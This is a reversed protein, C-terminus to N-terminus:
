LPAKIFATAPVLPTAPEGDLEVPMQEFTRLGADDAAMAMWCVAGKKLVGCAIEVTYQLENHGKPNGKAREVWFTHTGLLYTRQVPGALDFTQKLGDAAGSGFSALDDGTMTQGYCGFPLAVVVIVSAPDGHRVTEPIQICGTGKPPTPAGPALTDSPKPKTPTATWDPPLQYSFGIETNSHAPNSSVPNSQDANPNAAPPPADQAALAICGLAPILWLRLGRTM